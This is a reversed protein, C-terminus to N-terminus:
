EAKKLYRKELKDEIKELAETDKLLEKKNETVLEEFTVKRRRKM